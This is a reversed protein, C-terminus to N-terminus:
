PVAVGEGTEVLEEELETSQERAEVIKDGQLVTAIGEEDIEMVVPGYAIRNARGSNANSANVCLTERPSISGFAVKESGRGEHIHGCVWLNPPGAIMREVKGRLSACGANAGNYCKDLVGRPPSHSAIIDSYMPLNRWSSSLNRPSCYPVLTMTLKGDISIGKPRSVFNANSLPFSVSFPDHNGRLVIKTRFNQRALWADFKIIAKNKKKVSSDIAFDGLHLLVDGQPLITEGPTLGEEYGHTDSVVVLRLPGDGRKYDATEDLNHIGGAGMSTPVRKGVMSKIHKVYKMSHSEDENKKDENGSENSIKEIQRRFNEALLIRDGTMERRTACRRLEEWQSLVEDQFKRDYATVGNLTTLHDISQGGKLALRECLQRARRELKRRKKPTNMNKKERMQTETQYMSARIKVEDDIQEFIDKKKAELAEEEITEDLDQDVVNTLSDGDNGEKEGELKRQQREFRNNLNELDTIFKIPQIFQVAIDAESKQVTNRIRSMLENDATVVLTNREFFAADRALVDDAKMRPGAFVMSLGGDPLYYAEHLTGHDVIMSVRDELNQTKAWLATRKLLERHTLEFNSKGRVNELDILVVGDTRIAWDLRKSHLTLADGERRIQKGTKVKKRPRSAALLSVFLGVVKM